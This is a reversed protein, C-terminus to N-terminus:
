PAEEAKQSPRYLPFGDACPEGNATWSIVHEAVRRDAMRYNLRTAMADLLAEAADRVSPHDANKELREAGDWDLEGQDAATEVLWEVVRYVDPLHYRPPHVTWEEVIVPERNDEDRYPEIQQEYVSGIDDWLTEAHQVGYLRYAGTGGARDPRESHSSSTTM